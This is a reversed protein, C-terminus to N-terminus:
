AVGGPPAAQTLRPVAHRPLGTMRLLRGIGPLHWFESLLNPCQLGVGAACTCADLAQNCCMGNACVPTGGSCTVDCRGCHHPDTLLDVCGGCMLSRPSVCVCIGGACTFGAACAGCTGGCGDDGCIKRQCDPRCATNRRRQKQRKGKKGKGKRNGKGNATTKVFEVGLLSGLVGGALLRVTHRRSPTQALTRLLGDLRNADM